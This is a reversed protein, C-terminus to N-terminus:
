QQIRERAAQMAMERIMQASSMSWRDVEAETVNMAYWEHGDECVQEGRRAFSNRFPELTTHDQGPCVLDSRILYVDYCPEVYVVSYGRWKGIKAISAVSAGEIRPFVTDIADKEGPYIEWPPTALSCDLVRDVELTDHRNMEIQVVRPRFRTEPAVLAAFVWLDCSDIDISVFDVDSPVRYKEFVEVVNLLSVHERYLNSEPQHHTSDFRVGHWGARALYESNSDQVGHFGFEVYFPPGSQRPPLAHLPSLFLFHLIADQYQQSYWRWKGFRRLPQLLKKPSVCKRTGVIGAEACAVPCVRKLFAPCSASRSKIALCDLSGDLKGTPNRLLHLDVLQDHFHTCDHSGCRTYQTVAYPPLCPRKTDQRKAYSGHLRQFGTSGDAWLVTVYADKRGPGDAITANRWCGPREPSCGSGPYFALVYKGLPCNRHLEEPQPLQMQSALLSFYNLVKPNM